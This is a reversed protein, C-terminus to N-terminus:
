EIWNLCLTKQTIYTFDYGMKHDKQMVSSLSIGTTSIVVPM